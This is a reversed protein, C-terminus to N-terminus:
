ECVQWEFVTAALGVSKLIDQDPRHRFYLSLGRLDAKPNGKNM